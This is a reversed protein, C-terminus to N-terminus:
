LDTPLLAFSVAKILTASASEKAAGSDTGGSAAPTAPQSKAADAM